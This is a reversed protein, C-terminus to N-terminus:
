NGIVKIKEGAVIRETLDRNNLLALEGLRNQQVGFSKLADALSSSRNVEEIRIRHPQVNLKSPDSLTNFNIMTTEFIRFYSNFDNDAAVGHFVYITQDYDIFYSIVKLSQEEGTQQNQSVQESVSAIAPMGNVTTQKSDLLTLNLDKLTTEVAQELNNQKALTFVMMAKGDDPAMQVQLPSNQLKWGPPVPFKFKMEPHYFINSEVFGQRPDEGYVMGDIMKLYSAENVLWNDNNLSDKWQEALRSVTNKRDAPDPHTSMFTPIGGQESSLQMRNLVDFFDAMKQGDYGIRSAYEVGIQDSQRENDRSFKLFLLQMGQMAYGAFDRFKESAIMGGILLLQGLQQKSQQSVTHRATIHGMEHGLVGILEAESNFKALIGRTFYIYGGPVAFANIVPSDLIRFHYELNPRHSIKGMETGKEEIFKMLDEDEYEGFTAIVQPDYQKGMAIEQSESMLMLQKKGTVPNVACSPVMVLAAFVIIFQLISIKIKM